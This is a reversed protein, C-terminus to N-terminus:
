SAGEKLMVPISRERKKHALNLMSLARERILEYGGQSIRFNGYFKYATDVEYGGEDNLERFPLYGINGNAYGVIYVYEGDTRRLDEALQTFVEASVGVFTVPGIHIVHIYAHIINTPNEKLIKTTEDKWSAIAASWAPSKSYKNQERRFESIVEARSPIDLSLEATVLESSLHNTLCPIAESTASLIAEGLKQGLVIVDQRDSSTFVPITNACGGNTLLVVPNGPLNTHAYSAAYGAVDGSILRNKYSLAVNHMAYNALIALYDGNSRKLALVPLRYDVHRYHSGKRRDVAIFCGVEAFYLQVTELAVLAERAADLLWQDLQKIYRRNIVGCNRLRITCPASHTHTCSIIIQSPLLNYDKRCSDKFRKVQDSSLSILDCNLWLLKEGGSELYLARVYIDDLVGTSPQVRDVYGCLDVNSKPTICVQSASAKM